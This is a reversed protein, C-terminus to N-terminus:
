IGDSRAFDVPHRGGAFARQGSEGLAKLTSAAEVPDPRHDAPDNVGSESRWCRTLQQPAGPESVGQM